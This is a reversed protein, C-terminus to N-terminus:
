VSGHPPTRFWRILEQVAALPSGPDAPTEIDDFSSRHGHATDPEGSAVSEYGMTWEPFQRTEIPDELLIAVHQHRPDLAIVDMRDRVVDDEGELLQLFRGERYLLVGTLGLRANNDRSEALLNPLGTESFTDTATSSYVISLLYRGERPTPAHQIM